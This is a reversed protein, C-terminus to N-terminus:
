GATRGEALRLADLFRITNAFKKALSPDSRDATRRFFTAAFREAIVEPREMPKVVDSVVVDGDKMPVPYDHLLPLGGQVSGFGADVDGDRGARYVELASPHLWVLAADASAEAEAALDVAPGVVFTDEIEFGGWAIAGRCALRPAPDELTLKTYIAAVTRTVKYLVGLRLTHLKRDSSFDGVPPISACTVVITDSIFALRCFDDSYPEGPGVRTFLEDAEAPRAWEQVAQLKAIVQRPDHSQWIGKFGLIDLFAVAGVRM